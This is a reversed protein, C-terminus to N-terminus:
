YYLILVDHHINQMVYHREFHIMQFENILEDVVNNDPKKTIFKIQYAQTFHHTKNSAYMHDGQGKEYIICPYTIQAGDAPQYYINVQGVTRKLVERLKTDLETRRSM